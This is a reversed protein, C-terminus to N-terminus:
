IKSSTKNHQMHSNFSTNNFNTTNVKAKIKYRAVQKHHQTHSNFSANNFNTMNHCWKDCWDMLNM